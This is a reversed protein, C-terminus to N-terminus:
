KIGLREQLEKKLLFQAFTLHQTPLTMQGYDLNDTMPILSAEEDEQEQNVDQWKLHYPDHVEKRCFTAPSMTTHSESM